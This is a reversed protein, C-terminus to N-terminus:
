RSYDEGFRGECFGTSLFPVLRPDPEVRTERLLTQAKLAPHAYIAMLAVTVIGCFWGLIFTFVLIRWASSGTQAIYIQNRSRIM